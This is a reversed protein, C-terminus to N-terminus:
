RRGDRVKSRTGELPLKHVLETAVPDDDQQPCTTKGEDLEKISKVTALAESTPLTAKQEDYLDFWPLGAQSYRRATVPSPPPPEGTIDQWLESNAIHVFCRTSHGADWTDLGHPDPYIKQRMRGGAGLGMTGARLRM